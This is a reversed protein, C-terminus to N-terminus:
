ISKNNLYKRRIISCCLNDDGRELRDIWKVLLCENMVRVYTFGIGKFMKPKSLSQGKIM